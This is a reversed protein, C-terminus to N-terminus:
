SEKDSEASQGPKDSAKSPKPSKSADVTAKPYEPPVITGDPNLAPADVKSWVKADFRSKGITHIHGTDKARVRIYDAPDAPM